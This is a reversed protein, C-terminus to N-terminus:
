KPPGMWKGDVQTYTVGNITKTNPLNLLRKLEQFQIKAQPGSTAAKLADIADYIQKRQDVGMKGKIKLIEPVDAELLHMKSAFQTAPLNTEGTTSSDVFEYLKRAKGGVGTLFQNEDILKSLEDITQGARVEVEQAKGGKAGAAAAKGANTNANTVAAGARAAEAEAKIMDTIDQRSWRNLQGQTRELQTMLQVRKAVESQGVAVDKNAIGVSTNAAARARIDADIRGKYATLYARYVDMWTKNKDKFEAYDKEYKERAASYAESNGQVLGKMMANTSALMTIGHQHGLAGGLAGLAMLLPAQKMVDKMHDQPNPENFTPQPGQTGEPGTPNFDARDRALIDDEIALNSQARAQNDKAADINAQEDPTPTFADAM